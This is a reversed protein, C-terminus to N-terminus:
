MFPDPLLTILSVKNTDAHLRGIFYKGSRKDPELACGRVIATDGAGEIQLVDCLWGSAFPSEFLLEGRSACETLALSSLDCRAISHWDGGWYEEDRGQHLSWRQSLLFAVPYSSSVAVSSVTIDAPYDTLPVYSPESISRVFLRRHHQTAKDAVSVILRNTPPNFYLEPYVYGDPIGFQTWPTSSM